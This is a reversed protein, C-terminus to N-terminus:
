LADYHGSKLRLQEQREWMPTFQMIIYIYLLKDPGAHIMLVLVIITDSLFYGCHKCRSMCFSQKVYVKFLLFPRLENM